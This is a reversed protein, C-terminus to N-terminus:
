TAHPLISCLKDLCMMTTFLITIHNTNTNNEKFVSKLDFKDTCYLSVQSKEQHIQYIDAKM